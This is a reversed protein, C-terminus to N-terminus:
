TLVTCLPLDLASSSLCPNPAPLYPFYILREIRFHLHHSQLPSPQYLSIILMINVYRPCEHSHTSVLLILLRPSM